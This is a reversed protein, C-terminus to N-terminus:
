AHTLCSTTNAHIARLANEPTQQASDRAIWLDQWVPLGNFFEPTEQQVVLVREKGDWVIRLRPTTAATITWSGFSARNYHASEVALGSETLVRQTDNFENETM